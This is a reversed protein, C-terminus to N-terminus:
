KRLLNHLKTFYDKDGQLKNSCTPIYYRVNNSQSLLASNNSSTIIINFTNKQQYPQCRMERCHFTPETILGKMADNYTKFNGAVPVEDLNILTCGEFTKTYNIVEEPHSSKHFRDGLLEHLFNIVSGKCVQEKLSQLILAIKVKHGM